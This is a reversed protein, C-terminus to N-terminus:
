KVVVQYKELLEGTAHDVGALARQYGIEAQVLSQEAQSLQNQADLVFFITDVGLEYKRQEAELNKQALERSVKAAAISLKSQELNDIANKLEQQISQQRQRETYLSRKKVVLANGLDAEASRNRLPLQLTLTMGYSPYNLSGLEGFSDLLGGSASVLGTTPDITNGGIGNTSYFGGLSLNPKLGNTAVRINTEANEQDIRVSKLESRKQFAKALAPGLDVAELDGAPEAPETLELELGAISAKLDAGVMRRLETQAQKLQFEAQVIQLKVLAVQAESRYIDLQSIAGLELSRKDHDYSAQALKLSEQLVALSKQAQVVAWYDNTATLLMDNVSAGFAEESQTVNRQAVIMPAHTLFWGRGRLLPQTLSVTLGSSISPNLTAFSSNTTSKSAAMTVSYLTGTGFLQTYQSQYNQNLTSLTSAGALTSATPSTNRAPTFSTLIAPDFVAESKLLGFRATEVQLGSIRLDTNNALTLVIANNLSLRLKGGSIYDELSQPGAIAQSSQPRLFFDHFYQRTPFSQAAAAAALLCITTFTKTMSIRRM